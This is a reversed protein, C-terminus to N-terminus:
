ESEITRSHGKTSIFKGIGMEKEYDIFAHFVCFLQNDTDSTVVISNHGPGFIM